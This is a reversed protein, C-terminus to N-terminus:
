NSDSYSFEIAQHILSFGNWWAMILFILHMTLVARTFLLYGVQQQPLQLEQSVVVEGVAEAEAEVAVKELHDIVAASVLPSPNREEDKRYDNM